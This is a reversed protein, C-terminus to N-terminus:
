KEEKQKSLVNEESLKESVQVFGQPPGMGFNM